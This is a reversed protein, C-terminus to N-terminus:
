KKLLIQFLLKLRAKITTTGRTKTLFFLADKYRKQKTLTRVCEVIMETTYRYLSKKIPFPYEYWEWYPFSKTTDITRALNNETCYPHKVLEENLYITKYKCCIRLWMDRDEGLQIGEKFVGVEQFIKKRIFMCGTFFVYNYKCHDEIISIGKPLTHIARNIQGTCFVSYNPYKITLQYMTELYEPCWEDDADLFAIFTGQAIYIGTNRAISVGKNTQNILKIREDKIKMAIDASKDTSGDNIIILEFETYTQKLVSNITKAIFHEKNYLPIIVSIM